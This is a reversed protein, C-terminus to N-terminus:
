ELESTGAPARTRTIATFPSVSSTSGTSRATVFTRGAGHASTPRGQEESEAAKFESEDEERGREARGTEPEKEAAPVPM